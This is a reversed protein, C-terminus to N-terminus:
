EIVAKGMRYVTGTFSAILSEEEDRIKVEYTAIKKGDSLEKAYAYLKGSPKAKQFSINASIALSLNNHSNSALAFAFDALSFLFGGHVVDAGNLHEEKITTSVKAFGKELAEIKFGLLKAFRDNKEFFDQLEQM